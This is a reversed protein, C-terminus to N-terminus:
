GAARSYGSQSLRALRLALVLPRLPQSAGLAGARACVGSKPAMPQLACAFDAGMLVGWGKAVLAASAEALGPAALAATARAAVVALVAGLAASSLACVGMIRWYRASM